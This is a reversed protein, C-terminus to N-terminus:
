RGVFLGRAVEGAGDSGDLEELFKVRKGFGELPVHLVAGIATVADLLVGGPTLTDDILQHPIEALREMLKLYPPSPMRNNWAEDDFFAGALRVTDGVLPMAGTFLDLHSRAILGASDDLYGDNEEDDFDGRLGEAILTAIVGPLFVSTAYTGLLAAVRDVGEKRLDLKTRTATYNFWNIFWSKFPAIAKWMGGLGEFSSIDEPAGAMQTRRILSDAERIALTEAQEASAGQQLQEAFVQDHHAWWGIVDVTHQTATQAIYTNRNFWRGARKIRGDGLLIENTQQTIEFVQREMRAAMEPSIAAAEHGMKRPGRMYRMSARSIYGAKTERLIPGFGTYNQLANVTNLFMTGMQAGRALWAVIKAMTSDPPPGLTQEASRKLWPQIVVQVFKHGIDRNIINQVEINGLVLSVDRVAPHMHIFNLVSEVHIIQNGINFDLKHAVNASREKTFGREYVPWSAYADALRDQEFTALRAVKKPNGRAPVYGGQFEGFKTLFPETKMTKMYFGYAAYHAKQVREMYSGNRDYASQMWRFDAETLVGEDQMRDLFKQVDGEEWEYGALLKDRNSVGRSDSGHSYFHLALGLIEGKAKVRNGFVYGGLEPAVIKTGTGLNLRRIGQEISAAERRLDMRKANGADKVRQFLKPFIGGIQRFLHEIRVLHAFYDKTAGIADETKTIEGRLGREERQEYAVALSAKAEAVADERLVRKGDLQLQRVKASQHWLGKALEAFERFEDVTLAEFRAESGGPPKGAMMERARNLRPTWEQVLEPAYRNVLALYEDPNTDQRGADLTALLSRLIHVVNIDRTPTLKEDRKFAKRWLAIAKTKETRFNAAVEAMTEALLERRKASQAAAYDGKKVAAAAEQRARRAALAFKSVSVDRVDMSRLRQAAVNKAAKRLMRVPQESKLLLRLEQAVIQRRVKNHLAEAVQERILKPDTLEPHEAKMRADTDRKVVAGFEPEDILADVLQQGSPYGFLEAVTDPNLGTNTLANLKELKRIRNPDMGTVVAGRNLKHSTNAGVTSVVAGSDDLHEGNRLWSRVREVLTLRTAAEVEKRIERRRVVHQQQLRKLEGQTAGSALEMTRLRKRTLEDVALDEAKQHQELQKAYDEATGGAAVFEEETQFLAEFQQAEVLSRVEAETAVMRGFVQRVEDTLAPLDEGFRRRFLSNLKQVVDTYVGVIFARLRSFLDRMPESPAVGEYLWREFNLAFAEHTRRRAETSKLAWLEPKEGAWDLVTNLERAASSEPGTAQAIRTLEELYYHAMEHFLTSSDSKSNMLIQNLRPVFGGRSNEDGDQFLALGGELKQLAEDSLEFGLQEMYGREVEFGTIPNGTAASAELRELETLSHVRTGRPAGREQKVDVTGGAALQAVAQERTLEGRSYENVASVKVVEMKTGLSKLLPKATRPIVGEYFSIMGKAGIEFDAVEITHPKDLALAAEALEKGVIDSLKKGTMTHGNPGEASRVRGRSNVWLQLTGKDVLTLSFLKVGRIKENRPHINSHQVYRIESLVTGLGYLAANQTGTAFAVHKYGQEAALLLIRKLGLTVWSTTNARDGLDVVEGKKAKKVYAEAESRSGFLQPGGAKNTVQEGDVSVAFMRNSILPAARHRIDERVDLLEDDLASIDNLLENQEFATNSRAFASELRAKEAELMGVKRAYDLRLGRRVELSVLEAMDLKSELAAVNADEDFQQRAQTIEEQLIGVNAAREDDGVLFGERSEQAWDSQLEEVFFLPQGDATLRRSTRIHLLRNFNREATAMGHGSSQADFMVDAADLVIVHEEYNDKQGPTTYSSFATQRPVDADAADANEREALLEDVRENHDTNEVVYYGDELYYDELARDRAAIAEAETDFTQRDSPSDLVWVDRAAYVEALGGEVSVDTAGTAAIARELVAIYDELLEDLFQRASYQEDYFTGEAALYLVTRGYSSQSEVINLGAGGLAAEIADRDAVGAKIVLTPRWEPTDDVVSGGSIVYQEERAERNLRNLRAAEERAEIRTPHHSALGGDSFVDWRYVLDEDGPPVLVPALPMRVRVAKKEFQAVVATRSVKGTQLKLWDLIGSLEVEERKVKGKSILSNINGRWTAPPFAKDPMDLLANQVASFLRFKSPGAEQQVPQWGWELVSDGRTFLDSAAVQHELVVYDGNLAAGGHDEAYGKVPTVWDGPRVPSSAFESPVARYVTVLAGPNGRMQRLIGFMEADHKGKTGYNQPGHVTDYVTQDFPGKTLDHLPTGEERSPPRDASWYDEQFLTEPAPNQGEAMRISLANQRGLFEQLTVGEHKALTVAMNRVFLAVARAEEAPRGVEVAQAYADGYVKDLTARYADDTEARAAAEAMQPAFDAELPMLAQRESATDADQHFVAHPMLARGLASTALKTQWDGIPLEVDTGEEAAQKARELIGPFSTELQESVGATNPDQELKEVAALLKDPRIYVKKMDPAAADNVFAARDAPSRTSLKSDAELKELLQHAVVTQDANAARRYGDTIRVGMGPLGVLAMGRATHVFTDWLEGAVDVEFAGSRYQLHAQYRAAISATQQLVETVSEFGGDIAYEKVASLLLAKKTEVSLGKNFLAPLLKKGFTKSFASTVRGAGVLDLSAMVAGWGDALPAAQGPTYGTNILENYLEGSSMAYSVSAAGALAGPPGAVAFGALGGTVTAALSTVVNVADAGWNDGDREAAVQQKERRIQRQAPSEVPADGTLRGISVGISRRLGEVSNDFARGLWGLTSETSTLNGLDDRAMTLFEFDGAVRSALVPFDRDFSPETVQRQMAVTRAHSVDALVSAVPSGLREALRRAEGLDEASREDSMAAAVRAARDIQSQRLRDGFNPLAEGEPILSFDTM